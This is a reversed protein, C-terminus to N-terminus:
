FFANACVLLMELQLWGHQQHASSNPDFECRSQLEVGVVASHISFGM